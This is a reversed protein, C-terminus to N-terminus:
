RPAQRFLITLLLSTDEVGEVSHPAGGELHVWDGGRLEITQDDLGLRAHGKICHLTIPGPVKHSPIGTGAPVVLRVAEFADVRVIAHTSASSLGPGLPRLDVVEGATAHKLAM